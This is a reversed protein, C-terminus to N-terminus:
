MEGLKEKQQFDFPSFCTKTTHHRSTNILYHIKTLDIIYQEEIKILDTIYQHIKDNLYCIKTFANFKSTL